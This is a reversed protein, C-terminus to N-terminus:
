CSTNAEADSTLNQRMMLSLEEASTSECPPGAEYSFQVEAKTVRIRSLSVTRADARHMCVSYPGREPLHSRHFRDLVSYDIWAGATLRAFQKTREVAIGPEIASSSSLPALSEADRAVSLQVGNWQFTSAPFSRALVLLSFPRFRTLDRQRIEKYVSDFRRCDMLDTLLLGRSVFERDTEVLDDGYRNLLCLSLGFENVGIWSGGHDGDVPALYKVGRVVSVRPGLAPQRTDREDRNAFLVYGDSTHTWTVTCM